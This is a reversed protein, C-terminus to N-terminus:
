RSTRSTRNLRSTRREMPECVAMVACATSTRAHNELWRLRRKQVAGNQRQGGNVIHLQRSRRPTLRYLETSHQRATAAEPPTRSGPTLVPDTPGNAGMSSDYGCLSAEHWACRCVAAADKPGLGSSRVSSGASGELCEAGRRKKRKKKM